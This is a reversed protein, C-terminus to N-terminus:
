IHILSLHKRMYPGYEALFAALSPEGAAHARFVSDWALEIQELKEATNATVTGDALEMIPPPAPTARTRAWKNRASASARM